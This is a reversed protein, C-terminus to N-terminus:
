TGSEVTFVEGNTKLKQRPILSRMVGSVYPFQDAQLAGTGAVSAKSEPQGRVSNAYHDYPKEPSDGM